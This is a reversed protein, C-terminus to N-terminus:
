AMWTQFLAERFLGVRTPHLAGPRHALSPLWSSRHTAPTAQTGVCRAQGPSASLSLISLKESHATPCGNSDGGGGVTPSTGAAVTASTGMATSVPGMAMDIEEVLWLGLELGLEWSDLGSLVGAQSGRLIM